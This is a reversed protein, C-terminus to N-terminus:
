GNEDAFVHVQIVTNMAIRDTRHLLLFSFVFVLQM